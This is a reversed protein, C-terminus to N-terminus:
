QPRAGPNTYIPQGGQQTGTSPAAPAYGGSSPMNSSPMNTSPMNTSPQTGPQTYAGPTSGTTGQGSTAGTSDAPIETETVRLTPKIDIKQAKIWAEHASQNERAHVSAFPAALLATILLTRSLTKM